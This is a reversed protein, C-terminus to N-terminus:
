RFAIILFTLVDFFCGNIKCTDMRGGLEEPPATESHVSAFAFTNNLTTTNQLFEDRKKEDKAELLDTLFERPPNQLEAFEAKMVDTACDGNSCCPSKRGRKILEAEAKLLLAGCHSCVEDGFQGSDKYQM